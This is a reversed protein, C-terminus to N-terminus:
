QIGLAVGEELVALIDLEALINYDPDGNIIADTGSFKKILIRDGPKVGYEVDAGKLTMDKPGLAVVRACTTEFRRDNADKDPLVLKGYTSPPPERRVLIRGRM